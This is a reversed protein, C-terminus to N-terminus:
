DLFYENISEPNIKGCNALAIRHQKKYFDIDEYSPISEETIPEKFLLREVIRGKLLHEEVIESVDEEKIQCYFVGEPYVVMIPGKECFGHCGTEVIKIENKLENDALEDQLEHKINKAGSSV